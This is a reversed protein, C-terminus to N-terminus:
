SYLACEIMSVENFCSTSVFDGRLKVAMEPREV